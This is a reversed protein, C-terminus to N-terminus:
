ARPRVAATTEQCSLTPSQPTRFGNRESEPDTPGVIVHFREFGPGTLLRDGCTLWAHGLLAGGAKKDVGVFFEPRIGYRSLCRNAAMAQILCDARWPVHRAAVAIAWSLDALDLTGPKQKAAAAFPGQFEAFIDKQALAFHRLRAFALEKAAIALLKWDRLLSASARELRRKRSNVIPEATM